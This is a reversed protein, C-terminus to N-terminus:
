SSCPKPRNTPKWPRKARHRTWPRLPRDSWRNTGMVLMQSTTPADRRLSVRAGVGIVSLIREVAAQLSWAGALATSLLAIQQRFARAAKFLSRHPDHWCSVVLMWHQILFGLLKALLECLMREPKLSHWVDGQGQDKWLRFLLEIQWRLRLLVLAEHWDLLDEPVTTVAINWAALASSRASVSQGQEQKEVRMKKRRHEAVEESVREFFLRMPFQQKGVLVRLTGREGLSPLSSELVLPTGDEAFVQVDSRLYSLVWEQRAEEQAWRELNSFGRDRLHLTRTPVEVQALPSKGDACRGHQLPSCTLQGRLMDLRVFVKCAAPSAKGGNGRFLDALEAPLAITTSDELCVASFRNLLGLSVPDALVVQGLAVEWLALLFNATRRTMRKELATASVQLGVEGAQQALEGMGAAPNRLWGLVLTQALTAGTIKRKRTLLGTSRELQEPAECLVTQFAQVVQAALHAQPVSKM